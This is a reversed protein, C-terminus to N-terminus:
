ADKYTLLANMNINGVQTAGSGGATWPVFVVYLQLDRFFNGDYQVYKMIPVNIMFKKTSQAAAYSPEIGFLRDYVVRVSENTNILSDIPSVGAYFIESVTYGLASPIFTGMTFRSPGWLVLIRFKTSSETTIKNSILGSLKLYRLYIKSGIRQNEGSGQVLGQSVSMTYPQNHLLASANTFFQPFFKTEESKSIERRVVTKINNKRRFVKNRRKVFRRTKLKNTKLVM